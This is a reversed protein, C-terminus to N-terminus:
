IVTVPVASTLFQNAEGFERVTRSVTMPHTATAYVANTWSVPAMPFAMATQAHPITELAFAANTLNMKAEGYALATWLVTM